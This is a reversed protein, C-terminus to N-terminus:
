MMGGLQDAITLLDGTLANGLEDDAVMKWAKDVKHLTIDVTRTKVPADAAGMVDYLLKTVAETIQDENMQEEPAKAQEAIAMEMVKGMYQTMVENMDLNTIDVTVTATDKDVKSEKITYTLHKMLLDYQEKEEASIEDATPLDEADEFYVAMAATDMNKFADLGATVAEEPKPGSNGCAAFTLVMISAVFLSALKKM